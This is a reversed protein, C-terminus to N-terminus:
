SAFNNAYTIQSNSMSTIGAVSSGLGATLGIITFLVFALLLTYEVLDQGDERTLFAHMWQMMMSVLIVADM